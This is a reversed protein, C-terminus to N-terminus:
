PPQEDLVGVGVRRRQRYLELIAKEPIGLDGLVTPM